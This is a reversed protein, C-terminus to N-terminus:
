IVDVIFVFGTFICAVGVVACFNCRQGTIHKARGRSVTCYQTEHLFKNAGVVVSGLLFPLVLGRRMPAGGVMHTENGAKGKTLVFVLADFRKIGDVASLHDFEDFNQLGHDLVKGVVASSSYALTHCAVNYSHRIDWV